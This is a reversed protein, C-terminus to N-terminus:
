VEVLPLAHNRESGGRMKGGRVSLAFLTMM